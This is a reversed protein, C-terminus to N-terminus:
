EPVPPLPSLQVITAGWGGRAPDALTYHAVLQPLRDLLTHVTRQRVGVGKGHIIRVERIGRQRCLELYDPILTPLDRHGFPHLDLTGDIPLEVSEEFEDSVAAQDRGTTDRLRQM